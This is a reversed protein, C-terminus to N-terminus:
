IHTTLTLSHTIKNWEVNNLIQLKHHCSSLGNDCRHNRRRISSRAQHPTHSFHQQSKWKCLISWYVDSVKLQTWLQESNEATHCDGEKNWGSVQKPDSFTVRVTIANPVPGGTWMQMHVLTANRQILSLWIGSNIWELLANCKKGEKKKQLGSWRPLTHTHEQIWAKLLTLHACGLYVTGGRLFFHRCASLSLLLPDESAFIILMNCRCFTVFTFFTVLFHVKPSQPKRCVSNCRLWSICNSKWM